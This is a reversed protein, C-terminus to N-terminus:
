PAITPLPSSQNECVQVLLAHEGGPGTRMM